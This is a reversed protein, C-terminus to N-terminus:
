APKGRVPRGCSACFAAQTELPKGCEACAAGASPREEEKGDVSSKFGRIAQGLAKGADPLKKPGFVLLAIVCIVLLEPFGLGFM